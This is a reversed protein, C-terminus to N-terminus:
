SIDITSDIEAVPSRISIKSLNGVSYDLAEM